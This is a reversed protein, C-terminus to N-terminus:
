DLRHYSFERRESLEITVDKASTLYKKHSKGKTGVNRGSKKSREKMIRTDAEEEQKVKATGMPSTYQSLYVSLAHSGRERYDMSFPGKYKQRKPDHKLTPLSQKLSNVIIISERWVQHM